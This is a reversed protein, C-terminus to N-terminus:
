VEIESEKNELSHALKVIQECSNGRCLEKCNNSMEKLVEPKSLLFRITEVPNDELIVAVGSKLLFKANEEEQGPFANYIAMPLACHISESVTLGGPKTIILDACHMYDNVNDVYMLLKTNGGVVNEFKHYLKKNNGTIVVYQADPEKQSIESYLKLIKSVGFSGAMFLITPTSEKLGLERAVANRDCPELFKEAVPIGFPHIKEKPLKYKNTMLDVMEDSSVIFHDINNVVYTYHPSFDTIQSIVPISLEGDEKLKGLMITVFAHCSIIVDPKFQKIIPLLRNGKLKNTSNCLKNLPSEKDSIKYITGYFDPANKALFTYGDCILNNYLKGTLALGDSLLVNDMPAIRHFANELAAAAVKHGGGTSATFILIKM